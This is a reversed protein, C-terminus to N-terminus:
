WESTFLLSASPDRPRRELDGSGPERAPEIRLLDHEVPLGVHGLDHLQRPNQRAHGRLPQHVARMRVLGRDGLVLRGAALIRVLADRHPKEAVRDQHRGVNQHELRVLHRDALSWFCCTSIARSIAWRKL